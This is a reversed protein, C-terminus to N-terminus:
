KKEGLVFKKVFRQVHLGLYFDYDFNDIPLYFTEQDRWLSGAVYFESASPSSVFSLWHHVDNLVVFLHVDGNRLGGYINYSDQLTDIVVQCLPLITDRRFDDWKELWEEERNKRRTSEGVIDELNTRFSDFDESGALIIRKHVSFNKLFM